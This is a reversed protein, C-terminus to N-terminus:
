DGAKVASKLRQHKLEVVQAQLQVIKLKFERDSRWGLLVTFATGFTSLLFTIFSIRFATEAFYDAHIQLSTQEIDRGSELTSLLSNTTKLLLVSATEKENFAVIIFITASLLVLGGFIKALLRAVIMIVVGTTIRASLRSLPLNCVLTSMSTPSPPLPSCPGASLAVVPWAAASELGAIFQRRRM